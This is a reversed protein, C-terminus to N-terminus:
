STVEVYKWNWMTCIGVVDKVIAHDDNEHSHMLPGELMHVVMVDVKYWFKPILSCHFKKSGWCGSIKGFAVKQKPNKLNVLVM